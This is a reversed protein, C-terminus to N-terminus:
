RGQVQPKLMTMSECKRTYENLIRIGLYPIYGPVRTFHTFEPYTSHMLKNMMIPTYLSAISVYIYSGIFTCEWKCFEEFLHM